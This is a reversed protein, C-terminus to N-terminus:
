RSVEIVEGWPPRHGGQVIVWIVRLGVPADGYCGDGDTLYIAADYRPRSEALRALAPRFDTGGGGVLRTHRLDGAHRLKIKGAVTADAAYLDVEGGVARTVGGVEAVCRRLEATGMSGSTDVVCAIRPVPAHLGRLVPHGAGFGVAAQRRSPRRYTYDVAGARYHAAARVARRLKAPWPVVPPALQGEAWVEWEGAGDGRGHAALHERIAEAVARRLRKLEAPSAGGGAQADAEAEGPLPMGGAGSGCEGGKWPVDQVPAQAPGQATPEGPAAGRPRSQRTRGSGTGQGPQPQSQGPTAPGPQGQGPQPQPQPPQRLLRDYVDEATLDHPVKLSAYTVTGPPLKCGPAKHLRGNIEADAAVNWLKPDRTGRRDAHELLIHLLEHALVWPLAGSTHWEAVRTPDCMLTGHETVGLTDLGPCAVPRLTLAGASWYPWLQTLAARAEAIQRTWIVGCPTPGHNVNM